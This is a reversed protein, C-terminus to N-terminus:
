LLILALENEAGDSDTEPLIKIKEPAKKQTQLGVTTVISQLASVGSFHARRYASKLDFKALLLPIEGFRRRYHVIAHIFRHLATGYMCRALRDKEVRSNISMNSQFWFSQDHTICWKTITQGHENIMNQSVLGLPSVITSPILPISSCPLVLQWGREVEEKLMERVVAPNKQTSKHNGYHIAEFVDQVRDIEPLQTLPMTFGETLTKEIRPWLPHNKCIARLLETSRFESGPRLPTNESEPGTILQHLDFDYRALVEINRSAAERSMEFVLETQNFEKAPRWNLAREVRQMLSKLKVPWPKIFDWHEITSSEINDSDNESDDDEEDIEYRVRRGDIIFEEWQPTREMKTGDRILSSALQTTTDRARNPEVETQQYTEWRVGAVNCARGDKIGDAGPTARV